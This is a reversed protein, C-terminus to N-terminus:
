FPNKSLVRVSLSYESSLGMTRLDFVDGLLLLLDVQVKENIAPVLPAVAIPLHPVKDSTQCIDCPNVVEDVAGLATTTGIEMGVLICNLQPASVHWCNVHPERVICRVDQPNFDLADKLTVARCAQFRRPPMILRCDSRSDLPRVRSSPPGHGIFSDKWSACEGGM